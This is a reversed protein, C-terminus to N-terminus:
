ELGLLGAFVLQHDTPASRNDVSFQTLAFQCAGLYLPPPPWGLNANLHDQGSAFTLVGLLCRGLRLKAVQPALLL